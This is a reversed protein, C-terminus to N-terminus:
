VGRGEGLGLSGLLWRSGDSNPLRPSSTQPCVHHTPRPLPRELAALHASPLGSGLTPEPEGKVKKEEKELVLGRSSVSHLSPSFALTPTGGM